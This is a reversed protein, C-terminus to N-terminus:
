HAIGTVQDREYEIQSIAYDVDGVSVFAPGFRFRSVDGIRGIDYDLRLFAQCGAQENGAKSIVIPSGALAAGCLPRSGLYSQGFIDYAESPISTISEPTLVRESGEPRLPFDLADFSVERAGEDLVFAVKIAFPADEDHREPRPLPVPLPGFILWTDQHLLVPARLTIRVDGLLFARDSPWWGGRTEALRQESDVPFDVSEKGIFTDEKYLVVCASLSIAAVTNVALSSAKQKM